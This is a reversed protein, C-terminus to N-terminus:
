QPLPYNTNIYAIVDKDHQDLHKYASKTSITYYGDGDEAKIIRTWDKGLRWTKNSDFVLYVDFTQGQQDKNVYRANPNKAPYVQVRFMKTTEVWRDSQIIHQIM